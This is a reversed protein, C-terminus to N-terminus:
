AQGWKQSGMKPEHRGTRNGVTKYVIAKLLHMYVANNESFINISRFAEILQLSLRRFMGM